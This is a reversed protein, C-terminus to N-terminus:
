RLPLKKGISTFHSEIEFGNIAVIKTLHRRYKICTMPFYVITIHISFINYANQIHVCASPGLYFSCVLARLKVSYHPNIEASDKTSDAKNVLNVFSMDCFCIYTYTRQLKILVFGDQFCHKEDLLLIRLFSNLSFVYDPNEKEFAIMTQFFIM